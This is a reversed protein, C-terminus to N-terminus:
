AERLRVEVWGSADPELDGVVSYSTGDIVLVGGQQLGPAHRLHFAAHLSAAEVLGLPNALARDFVVPFSEGGGFTATTNALARETADNVQQM